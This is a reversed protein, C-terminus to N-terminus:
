RKRQGRALGTVCRHSTRQQLTKSRNVLRHMKQHVLRVFTVLCTLQREVKAENGNNWRFAITKLRPRIISFHVLTAIFHLPQESAQLTKTADKGSEILQIDYKKAEDM